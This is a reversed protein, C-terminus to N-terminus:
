FVGEGPTGIAAAESKTWASLARLPERFGVLLMNCFDVPATKLLLDRLPSTPRIATTRPRCIPWSEKRVKGHEDPDPNMRMM